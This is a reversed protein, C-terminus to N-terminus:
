ENKENYIQFKRQTIGSSRILYGENVAATTALACIVVTSYKINIFPLTLPFFFLVVGTIKNMVSHVAVFKRQRYYGLTINILKIIAIVSIWTYLLVPVELVPLLKILCVITFVTDAITDLRSGLEGATGTKRAVAGDIM